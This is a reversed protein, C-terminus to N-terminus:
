HLNLRFSLGANMSFGYESVKAQDSPKSIKSFHDYKGRTNSYYGLRWTSNLDLDYGLGGFVGVQLIQGLRIPYWFFRMAPEISLGTRRLSLSTHYEEALDKYAAPMNGDLTIIDAHYGLAGGFFLMFSKTKVPAAYLGGGINFSTLDDANTITSLHVSYLFRSDVPIAAVEFNLSVPVHPETPYGYEKLWRNIHPDNAHTFSLSSNLLLSFTSDPHTQAYVSGGATLLFFLVYGRLKM